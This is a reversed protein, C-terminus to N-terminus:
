KVRRREIFALVSSAFIRIHSKQAGLGVRCFDLERAKRLREVHDISVGGLQVSVQKQTLLKDRLDAATAPLPKQKAV